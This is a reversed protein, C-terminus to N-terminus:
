SPAPSTVIPGTVRIDVSFTAKDDFPLDGNISSVFGDFTLTTAPSTPLTIIMEEIADTGDAAYNLEIADQGANGPDLNGELTLTGSDRIGPEPERDFGSDMDTMDIEDKSREPLGVSTLRGVLVGGISFTTGHGHM